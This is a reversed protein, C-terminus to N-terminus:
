SERSVDLTMELLNPVFGMKEYARIASKNSAYVDLKYDHIRKGTGWRLLEDFILKNVGRGRWAPEVYMFGLYGHRASKIHPKSLGLRLYGCAILEDSLAAVILQTEDSEIMALIDYYVIAADSLNSAHPREAAILRQEFELLIPLDKASAARLSIKSTL